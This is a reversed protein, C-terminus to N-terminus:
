IDIQKVSCALAKDPAALADAGHLIEDFPLHPERHLAGRRMGMFDSIHKRDVSSNENGTRRHQEAINGEHDLGPQSRIAATVM